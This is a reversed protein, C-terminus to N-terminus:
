YVRVINLPFLAKALYKAHEQADKKTAFYETDYQADGSLMVLYRCEHPSTGCQIPDFASVEAVMAERDGWYVAVPKTNM